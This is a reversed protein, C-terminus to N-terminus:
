LMKRQWIALVRTFVVTKTGSLPCVVTIKLTESVDRNEIKQFVRLYWRKKQCELGFIHEVLAFITQYQWPCFIAYICANWRGFTALVGSNVAHYTSARDKRAARSPWLARDSWKSESPEKAANEAQNTAIKHSHCSQTCSTPAMAIVCTLATTLLSPASKQERLGCQQRVSACLCVSAKVTDMTLDRSLFTARGCIKKASLSLHIHPSSMASSSEEPLLCSVATGLAPAKADQQQMGEREKKRYDSIWPKFGQNITKM